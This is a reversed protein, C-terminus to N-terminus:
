SGFEPDPGCMQPSLLKEVALPMKLGYVDRIDILKKVQCAALPRAGGLLHAVLMTRAYSELMEMKYFAQWIDGGMTLAGHHDLLMADHNDVLDQISDPVEDTSPTAYPATPITGFTCVIEPLICKELSLGAVTFGIATSPHAHVIASIDPRKRYVVLHMKLETSPRAPQQAKKGQHDSAIAEGSLDTLVMDSPDLRGKCTGAPTSLLRHESLRISLNGEVGCLLGRTYALRCVEALQRRADDENM